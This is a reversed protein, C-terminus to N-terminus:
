VCWKEEQQTHPGSGLAAVAVNSGDSSSCSSFHGIHESHHVLFVTLVYIQLCQPVAMSFKSDGADSM